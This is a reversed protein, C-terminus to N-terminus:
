NKEQEETMEATEDYLGLLYEAVKPHLKRITDESPETEVEEGDSKITTFNWDVIVKALKNMEYEFGDHFRMGTDPDLHICQQRLKTHVGWTLPQYKVVYKKYGGAVLDSEDAPDFDKGVDVFKPNFQDFRCFFVKEFVDRKSVFM